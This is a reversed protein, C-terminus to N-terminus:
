FNITLKCFLLLLEVVMQLISLIVLLRYIGNGKNLQLVSIIYLLSKCIIVILRYLKKCYTQLNIYVSNINYPKIKNYAQIVFTQNGLHIITEPYAMKIYNDLVSQLKDISQINLHNIYYMSSYRHYLLGSKIQM